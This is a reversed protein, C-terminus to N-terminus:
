ISGLYARLSRIIQRARIQFKEASPPKVAPTVTVQIESVKHGGQKRSQSDFELRMQVPQREPSKGWGSLMGSRGVKMLVQESDVEKLVAHNEELFAKLKYVIMDASTCATITQIHEMANVSIKEAPKGEVVEESQELRTLSCVRNRGTEKAQYLAKDARRVVDHVVDGTEIQAVGFSSTVTARPLGGVSAHEIALRFRNAKQIAMEFDTNPCLVVFEEGGYRGVVEGSYTEAELLRALDILVRDGVAHGHSDNISKFYDVDLFIASFIEKKGKKDFLQFMSQLQRELEGRNAIKTLADRSAALKLQQMEDGGSKEVTKQNFLIELVGLIQNKEGVIPISQVEFEDLLESENMLYYTSLVSKKSSHALLLAQDELGIKKRKESYYTLLEPNWDIHIMENASRGTLQQMGQSWMVIDMKRDVLYFGSYHEDLSALYQMIQHINREALISERTEKLQGAPIENTAGEKYIMQAAADKDVWSQLASVVAGDFRAPSQEFLIQIADAHSKGSRYVQSSRLSDYADAVTLIRAGLSTNSLSNNQLLKKIIQAREAEVLITIISLPIKFAQLLCSANFLHRSMLEREIPNLRGPKNLIHQPVSIKGFDHLLAAVEMERQQAENWGLKSAIKTSILAVRQSHLYIYPDYSRLASLLVSLLSKSVQNEQNGESPKNDDGIGLRRREKQESNEGSLSALHFLTVLESSTGSRRVAVNANTRDIAIEPSVMQNSDASAVSSTQTEQSTM